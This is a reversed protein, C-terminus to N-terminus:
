LKTSKTKFINFNKNIIELWGPPLSIIRPIFIALFFVILFYLFIGFIFIYESFPFIITLMWRILMGLIVLIFITKAQEFHSFKIGAEQQILYAIASVSILQTIVMKIALGTAGMELGWGYINPKSLLIFSTIVGVPMLLLNIKLGVKTRSSALLFASDIQGMSQHISYMLLFALPIEALAYSHGYLALLIQATWPILAGAILSGIFFLGKRSRSYLSIASEIDNKHLAEAVEKWFIKIFSATILLSVSAIQVSIAFYAQQSAGGWNQLMWKDLFEGACNLVIIPALPLCYKIYDVVSVLNNSGSSSHKLPNYSTVAIVGAILWLLGICILYNTVTLIGLHRLEFILGFHILQTIVFLTQVRITKRQSELLQSAVTWFDSQFVVAMLAIVVLTSSNDLWIKTLWSGPLIFLIIAITIIYKSFFFVWFQAIFKVTRTEQSLFTFFASSSGFDLLQKIAMSAAMLFVLMGYDESGLFRALLIGVLLTSGGRFCNALFSIAIRKKINTM